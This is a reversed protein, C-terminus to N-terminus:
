LNKNRSRRLLALWYVKLCVIMTLLLALWSLDPVQKIVAVLIAITLAIKILEWVMMNLVAAGAHVAPKRSVGWVMLASPLVVAIAGYLASWTKARDQSLLEWCLVMLAGVGGQVAVMSWLSIPPHRDRLTQAEEPTLVKFSAEDDADAQSDDWPQSENRSTVRM